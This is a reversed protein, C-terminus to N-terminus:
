ALLSIMSFSLASEAVALYKLDDPANEEKLIKEFLPFYRGARKIYLILQGPTQLNIYFEREARERVEPIEIPVRENCFSLSEPFKIGSLYRAFNGEEVKVPAILLSQARPKPPEACSLLQSFFSFVLFSFSLLLFNNMSNGHNKFLFLESASLVKMNKM